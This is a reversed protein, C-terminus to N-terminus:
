SNLTRQWHDVALRVAQGAYTLPYWSNLPQGNNMDQLGRLVIRLPVEEMWRRLLDYELASLVLPAEGAPQGCKRWWAGLVENRYLIREELTV